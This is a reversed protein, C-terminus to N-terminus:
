FMNEVKKLMFLLVLKLVFYNIRWKKVFFKEIVIILWFFKFVDFGYGIEGM